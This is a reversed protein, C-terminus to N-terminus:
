SMIDTRYGGQYGTTTPMVERPSPKKVKPTSHHTDQKVNVLRILTGRNAVALEYVRFAESMYPKPRNVTFIPYEFVEVASGDHKSIDGVFEVLCPNIHGNRIRFM